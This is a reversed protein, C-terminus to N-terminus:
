SSLPYSQATCVVSIAAVFLDFLDAVRAFLLYLTASSGFGGKRRSFGLNVTGTFVDIGCERAAAASSSPEIGAAEVGVKKFVQLFSGGGCGVDLM